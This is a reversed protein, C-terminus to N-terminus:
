ETKSPKSKKRKKKARSYINSLDLAIKSFLFFLAMTYNVFGVKAYMYAVNIGWGWM